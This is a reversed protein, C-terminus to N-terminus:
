WTLLNHLIMLFSLFLLDIFTTYVLHRCSMNLSERILGAIKLGRMFFDWGSFWTPNFLIPSSRSEWLATGDASIPKVERNTITLPPEGSCYDGLTKLLILM